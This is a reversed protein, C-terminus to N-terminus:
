AIGLTAAVAVILLAYAVQLGTLARSGTADGAAPAHAGGELAVAADRRVRWWEFLLVAGLTMLPAFGVWYRGHSRHFFPQAFASVTFVKVCLSWVQLRQHRVIVALNALALAVLMPIYLALTAFRIVALVSAATAGSFPPTRMGVFREVFENPRGIFSALNTRVQQAYSALTVDRLAYAAMRRQAELESIGKREAYKRSFAAAAYFVTSDGPCRGFCIQEEGGFTIGVALQASSTTVVRDGLKGSAALSWPALLAVFLASGIGLAAARRLLQSGPGAILSVVLLSVHLAAALILTNGRLYVMAVLLLELLLVAPLRVPRDELLDVAMRYTRAFVVVAVLGASLDAWITTAFLLWTAALGPFVLMALTAHRGFTASVERLGFLWLVFTAAAMYARVTTVDPTLDIAYLPVLLFSMGPMFWGNSVLEHSLRVGAGRGTLMAVISEANRAYFKEDGSLPVDQMFFVAGVWGAVAMSFLLPLVRRQLASADRPVLGLWVLGRGIVRQRPNEAVVDVAESSTSHEPASSRRGTTGAENRAEPHM